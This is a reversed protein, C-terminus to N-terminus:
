PAGRQDSAARIAALRHLFVAHAAEAESSYRDDSIEHPRGQDGSLQVVRFETGPPQALLAGKGKTPAQAFYSVILTLTPSHRGFPAAKHEKVVDETALAALDSAIEKRRSARAEADPSLAENM